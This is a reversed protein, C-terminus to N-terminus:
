LKTEEYRNHSLTMKDVTGVTTRDKQDNVKTLIIPVSRSRQANRQKPANQHWKTLSVFCNENLSRSRTIKRGIHRWSRELETTNKQLETKAHHQLMEIQVTVKQQNRQQTFIGDSGVRSPASIPREKVAKSLSQGFTDSCIGAGLSKSRFMQPRKQENKFKEVDLSSVSYRRQRIHSANRETTRKSGRLMDLTHKRLRRTRYWYLLPNFLSNLQLITEAWRITSVQRFFLSAERFLYAVVIPSGSVAFFVTLWLTTYAFKNELKGKVLVNVPCIRTRNWKRVALYAKVYFYAILSLCLFWFINVIVDIVLIIEYRVSAFEMIAVPVAVLIVLLWAVRTYKNLRGRTVTVKYDKWKAVAVYREWAILLLHLFSVCCITYMLSVGIVDITCIIDVELVRRIVLTDLTISMPMSIAGVLLDTLAVSSLLINSNKKLERRTKVAIIVLLNLVVTVPCAIATIAVIIKLSTTHNLDWIFQPSVPCYFVSRTEESSSNALSGTNKETM